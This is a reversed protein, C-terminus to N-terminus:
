IFLPALGKLTGSLPDMSRPNWRLCCAPAPWWLSAASAGTVSTISSWCGLCGALRGISGVIVGVAAGSAFVPRRRGDYRTWRGLINARNDISGMSGYDFDEILIADSEGALTEGAPINAM